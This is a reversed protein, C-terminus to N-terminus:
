FWIQCKENQVGGIEEQDSKKRKITIYYCMEVSNDVSNESIKNYIKYIM